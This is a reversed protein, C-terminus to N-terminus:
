CLCAFCSFQVPSAVASIIGHTGEASVQFFVSLLGCSGSEREPTLAERITELSIHELIMFETVSQMGIVDRSHLKHRYKVAQSTLYEYEHAYYKCQQWKTLGSTGAM